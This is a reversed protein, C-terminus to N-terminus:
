NNRIRDNRLSEMVRERVEAESLRGKGHFMAVHAKGKIIAMAVQGVKGQREFWYVDYQIGEVLVSFEYKDRTVYHQITDCIFQTAFDTM